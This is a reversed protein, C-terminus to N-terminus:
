RHRTVDHFHAGTAEREDKGVHRATVAAADIRFSRPRTPKKRASGEATPARLHQRRDELARQVVPAGGLPAGAVRVIGSQRHVPELKGADFLEIGCQTQQEM